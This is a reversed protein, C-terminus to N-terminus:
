LVKFSESVPQLNNFTPYPDNYWRKEYLDKDLYKMHLLVLDSDPEIEPLNSTHGGANWKIPVSTICYKDYHPVRIIGKAQKMLPKSWDISEGVVDYGTARAYPTKLNDIYEKLNVLYEDVDVKVVWDYKELLTSTINSENDTLHQGAGMKDLTPGDYKFLNLDVDDAHNCIDEIVGNDSNHDIIFLSFDKYHGVWKRLLEDENRVTTIVAIM